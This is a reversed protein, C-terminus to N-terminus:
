WWPWTRLLDFEHGSVFFHHFIGSTLGPNVFGQNRVQMPLWDYFM